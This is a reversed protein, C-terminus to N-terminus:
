ATILSVRLQKKTKYKTIICLKSANVPIQINFSKPIISSEVLAEVPGPLIKLERRKNRIRPLTSSEM